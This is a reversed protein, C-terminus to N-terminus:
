VPMRIIAFCLSVPCFLVNLLFVTVPKKYWVTIDWNEDSAKKIHMRACFIGWLICVAIYMITMM